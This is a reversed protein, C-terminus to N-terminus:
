TQDNRELRPPLVAISTPTATYSVNSGNQWDPQSQWTRRQVPESAPRFLVHATRESPNNEWLEAFDGSESVHKKNPLVVEKLPNCGLEQHKSSSPHIMM